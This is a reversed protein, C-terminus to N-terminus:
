PSTCAVTLPLPVRGFQSIDREFTITTGAPVVPTQVRVTSATYRGEPDQLVCSTAGAASGSNTIEISVTLGGSSPVADVLQANFPGLGAVSLKAVVALFAVFAIIGAVAIGHVQSAAPQSLGLPNCLECLAIDLPM